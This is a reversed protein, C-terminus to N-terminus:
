AARAVRPNAEVCWPSSLATLTTSNQFGSLCRAILAHFLDCRTPPSDSCVEVCSQDQSMERM